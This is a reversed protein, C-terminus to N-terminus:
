VTQKVSLYRRQMLKYDHKGLVSSLCVGCAKSGQHLRQMRAEWTNIIRGCRSYLAGHRSEWLHSVGSERYAGWQENDREPWHVSM